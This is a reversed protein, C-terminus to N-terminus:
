VGARNPQRGSRAARQRDGSVLGRPAALHDVYKAYDLCIDVQIENTQM